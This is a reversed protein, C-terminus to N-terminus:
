TVKKQKAVNKNNLLLSVFIIKGIKKQTRIGGDYSGDLLLEASKKQPIVVEVNCLHHSIKM